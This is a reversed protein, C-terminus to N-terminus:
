GGRRIIGCFVEVEWRINEEDLADFLDLLGVQIGAKEEESWGGDFDEFLAESCSACLCFVAQLFAKILRLLFHLISLRRACMLFDDHIIYQVLSVFLNFAPDHISPLEPTSLTTDLLLTPLHM